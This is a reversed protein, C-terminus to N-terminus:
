PSATHRAAAVMSCANMLAPVFARPNGVCVGHDGAVPVVRSGPIAEALKRQRHPPVLRDRETVVVTTPVDVETIWEHSSYRSIAGAAEAIAAPDGSRLEDLIWDRAPVGPMRAELVRSMVARRAVGPTFRLGATMFPVLSFMASERPNGRFNRSTACLVLGNVLSRHRHWLLQAIPGGMSYGVATVSSLGLVDALAAVDDACDALRFRRTRVGHGHGRHDIAIVRYRASLPEFCWLWNLGGTAGLGHLLVVTPAGVPGPAERIFTTGRGPLEVYRGRPVFSPPDVVALPM